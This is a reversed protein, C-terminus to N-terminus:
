AKRRNRRTLTGVAALALLTLSMPEPVVAVASVTYGALNSDNASSLDWGLYVSAALGPNVDVFFNYNSPFPNSSPATTSVSTGTPLVDTTAETVLTNLQTVSAQSGNVEVDLAFLEKDTAPSFGNAQINAQSPGSASGSADTIGTAQQVTYSGSGGVLTLKNLSAGSGTFTGQLHGTGNTITSGYASGPATTTLSLVPMTASPVTYGLILDQGTGGDLESNVGGNSAAALTSDAVDTLTFGSYTFNSTNFAGSVTNAIAFDYTTGATLNSTGETIMKIGFGSASDTLSSMFLTDFNTLSNGDFSGAAKVSNVIPGSHYATGPAVNLKWDYSGTAGFTTASLNVNGYSNTALAGSGGTITGNITTAGTTVFKTSDSSLTGGSGITLSNSGLENNNNGTLYLTAGNVNVGGSGNFAVQSGSAENLKLTSGTGSGSVILGNSGGLPNAFTVVAGSTVGISTASTGSTSFRGSVDTSPTAAFTLTGGDFVASNNTPVAIPVAAATTLVVNATGGLILGHYNGGEVSPNMDLTGSGNVTLNPQSGTVAIAADIEATVNSNVTVTPTSGTMGLTNGSSGVIDYSGGNVTGFTINGLTIGAGMTITQVGSVTNNGSGIVANNSTSSTWGADASGSSWDAASTSWTGPGDQPTAHNSGGSDWTFIAAEARMPLLGAVAFGILKMSRRTTESKRM